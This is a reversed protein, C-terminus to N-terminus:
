ATERFHADQADNVSDAAQAQPEVVVFLVHEGNDISQVYPLGSKRVLRFIADNASAVYAEFAYVNQARSKEVLLWNLESGLGLGQYADEIMIAPEAVYPKFRPDIVYFAYGVVQEPASDTVAVLVSGRAPDLNVIKRIDDLTPETHRMYRMYISRSSSRAYMDHIREADQPQAPRIVVSTGNRLTVRKIQYAM